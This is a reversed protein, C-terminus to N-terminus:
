TAMFTATIALALAYPATSNAGIRQNMDGRAVANHRSTHVAASHSSTGTGLIFVIEGAAPLSGSTTARSSVRKLLSNDLNKCLHDREDVSGNRDGKEDQNPAQELLVRDWSGSSHMGSLWGEGLMPFQCQSCSESRM